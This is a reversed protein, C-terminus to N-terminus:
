HGSLGHLNLDEGACTVLLRSRGGEPMRAAHNVHVRVESGPEVQQRVRRVVPVLGREHGADHVLDCEALGPREELEARAPPVVGGVQLLAERAREGIERGVHERQTSRQVGLALVELTVHPGESEAPLEVDHEDM